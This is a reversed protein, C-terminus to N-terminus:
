CIVMMIEGDMAMTHATDGRPSGNNRSESIGRGLACFFLARLAAVALLLTSVAYRFILLIYKILVLLIAPIHVFNLHLSHVYGRPM